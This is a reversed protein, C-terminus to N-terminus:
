CWSGSYAPENHYNFKGYHFNGVDPDYFYSTRNTMRFAIDGSKRRFVTTTKAAVFGANKKWNASLRWLLCRPTHTMVRLCCHRPPSPGRLRFSFCCFLRSDSLFSCYSETNKMVPLYLRAILLSHFSVKLLTSLNYLVYLICNVKIFEDM